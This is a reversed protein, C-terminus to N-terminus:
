KFISKIAFLPYGQFLRFIFGTSAEQFIVGMVDPHKAIPESSLLCHLIWDIKQRLLELLNANKTEVLLELQRKFLLILDIKKHTIKESSSTDENSHTDESVDESDEEDDEVIDAKDMDINLSLFVERPSEHSVNIDITNEVDEVQNTEISITPMIRKKFFLLFSKFRHLDFVDSGFNKDWMLLDERQNEWILHQMWDLIELLWGDLQFTLIVAILYRFRSALVKKSSPDQQLDLGMNYADISRARGFLDRVVRGDCDDDFVVESISEFLLLPNFDFKIAYYQRILQYLSWPMSALSNFSELQSSIIAPPLPKGDQNKCVNSLFDLFVQVLEWRKYKIAYSLPDERLNGNFLLRSVPVGQSSKPLTYMERFWHIKSVLFLRERLAEATKRFVTVHSLYKQVTMVWDKMKIVGGETTLFDLLHPVVRPDKNLEGVSFICDKLHGRFIIWRNQWSELGSTMNDGSLTSHAIQLVSSIMEYSGKEFFCRLKTSRQVLFAMLMSRLERNTNLLDEVIGVAAPNSSSMLIVMDYFQTEHALSGANAQAFSTKIIQYVEPIGTRLLSKRFICLYSEDLLEPFADDIQRLSTTSEELADEILDHPIRSINDGSMRALDELAFSNHSDYSINDLDDTDTCLREKSQYTNLLVQKKELSTSIYDFDLSQGKSAADNILIDLFTQMTQDNMPSELVLQIARNHAFRSGGREPPFEQNYEQLLHSLGELNGDFCADYIAQRQELNRLDHQNKLHFPPRLKEPLSELLPSATNKAPPDDNSNHLENKRKSSSITTFKSLSLLIAVTVLFKM